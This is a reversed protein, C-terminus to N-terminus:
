DKTPQTGTALDRSAKVAKVIDPVNGTLNIKTDQTFTATKSKLFTRWAGYGFSASFLVLLELVSPVVSNWVVARLVVVTVLLATPIVKAHDAKGHEDVLDLARVPDWLLRLVFPLREFQM